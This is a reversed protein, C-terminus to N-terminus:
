VNRENEFNLNLKGNLEEKSQDNLSNTKTQIDVKGNVLKKDISNKDCNNVLNSNTKNKCDVSNFKNDFANRISEILKELGLEFPKIPERNSIIMKSLEENEHIFCCNNLKLNDKVLYFAKEEDLSNLNSSGDNNNNQEYQRGFLNGNKLRLYGFEGAVIIEYGKDMTIDLHDNLNVIAIPQKNSLQKAQQIKYNLKSQNKDNLQENTTKIKDNNIAKESAVKNVTKSNEVKDMQMQFTCFDDVNIRKILCLENAFPSLNFTRLIGNCKKAKLNTLFTIMDILHPGVSSLLGGSQMLEKYKKNAITNLELQKRLNILLNTQQDIKTKVNQQQQQNTTAATSNKHNQHNNLYSIPQHNIADQHNLKHNTQQNNQQKNKLNLIEVKSDELSTDKSSSSEEISSEDTKDIICNSIENKKCHICNSQNLLQEISDLEILSRGNINVNILNIDGIYNQELILNRMLKFQPLFRLPFAYISILSPYYSSAECMKNLEKITLCSPWDCFM